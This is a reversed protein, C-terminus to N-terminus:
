FCRLPFMLPVVLPAKNFNNDQHRKIELVSSILRSPYVILQSESQPGTFGLSAAPESSLEAEKLLSDSVACNGNLAVAAAENLLLLLRSSFTRIRLRLACLIM